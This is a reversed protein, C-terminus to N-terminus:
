LMKVKLSHDTTNTQLQHFLLNSWSYKFSSNIQNFSFYRDTYASLSVLPKFKKNIQRRSKAMTKKEIWEIILQGNCVKRRQRKRNRGGTIFGILLLKKARLDAPDMFTKISLVFKQAVPFHCKIALSQSTNCVFNKYIKDPLIWYLEYSCLLLNQLKWTAPSVDFAFTGCCNGRWATSPLFLLNTEGKHSQQSM